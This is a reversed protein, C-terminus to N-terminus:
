GGVRARETYVPRGMSRFHMRALYEGIIGLCALQAGSFISVISGLFPFGAVSTGQILYRGLVWTLTVGGFLTFVLGILSAIRLPLASFGTLMNAAHTLLKRTSYGSEGISRKEHRVRVSSFRTTAWSLLVDISVYSDAQSLFARRLDTRFVRFASSDRAAKVGMAVELAIKVSRSALDRALGHREREPSGYVVDFGKELEDLLKPIEEPPHQLDDDMTVIVDYGAARIGCLLANHQGYNRMLDIGLIRTASRDEVLSQICKWTEDLGDDCVLVIEHPVDFSELVPILRDLLPPLSAASRYAPVVVSLGRPTPQTSLM